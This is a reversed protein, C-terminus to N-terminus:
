IRPLESHVSFFKAGIDPSKIEGILKRFNRCGRFQLRITVHLQANICLIM